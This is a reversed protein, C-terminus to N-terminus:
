PEGGAGLSSAAAADVMWTLSGAVPEIAQAPVRMPDRPGELVARLASAKAEGAVLFVVAAAANIPPPTLTVRAIPRSPDAVAWREREGVAASHPFLSATHADTGLGLLVLDFREGPRLSPAGSPTRFHDRMEREYAAAAEAPPVEGRIRHVNQPPLSIREILARNAAGFNSSPDDPGVSREDSWFLHVRPWEISQEESLLAFMPLPTSGGPIAVTFRGGDRIAPAAAAAFRGAAATMLAEATAYVEITEDRTM